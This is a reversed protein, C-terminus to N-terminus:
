SGGGKVALPEMVAVTLNEDRLYKRAVAQVQEATVARLRAAYEQELQWPLGVVALKGIKMAQYFVSDRGYVDSAVVQAKVRELEQARVPEHQVRAIEERIAAKLRDPTVGEAPHAAITFLTSFRAISDYEAGISAALQKQRVLVTEFRASKGGDLVDALLDLAYPEWDALRDKRIVPVHWGMLLYPVKAAAPVVVDRTNTQAPEPRGSGTALPRAPVPEFYKRALQIVREPEVDGAVVLTANNPAYWRAYWDRLDDLKLAALDQPWGIIPNRYNNVTYATNMFREYALADPQDDTRLRREEQVVRREKEFEPETLKLRQMREAELRLSIELRSAELSQFYATYDRGTFANERGGQEAILRSFENPKLNDTGQFMMHELVHSVGTLGDPEYSGGVRYWIQSVVVPARHDPKVLVTLGNDLTFEHVRGDGTRPAHTCGGALLAGSVLGLTLQKLSM